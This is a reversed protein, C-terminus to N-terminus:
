KSFLAKVKQYHELSRKHANLLTAAEPSDDRRQDRVAMVLKGCNIGLGLLPISEILTEALFLVAEPGLMNTVELVLSITEKALVLSTEPHHVVMNYAAWYASEQALKQKIGPFKLANMVANSSYGKFEPFIKILDKRAKELQEVAELFRLRAAHDKHFKERAKGCWKTVKSRFNESAVWKSIGVVPFAIIAAGGTAVTAGALGVGVASAASQREKNRKSHFNIKHVCLEIEDNCKAHIRVLEDQAAKVANWKLRFEEKANQPATISNSM